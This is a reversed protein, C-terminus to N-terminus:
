SPARFDKKEPGAGVFQRGDTRSLFTLMPAVILSLGHQLVAFFPPRDFARRTRCRRLSSTQMTAFQAGACGEGDGARRRLIMGHVDM